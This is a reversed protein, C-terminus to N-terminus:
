CFSSVTLSLLFITVIGEPCAQFARHKYPPLSFFEGGVLGWFIGSFVERPLKGIVGGAQACM